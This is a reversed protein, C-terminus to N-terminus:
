TFIMNQCCVDAIQGFMQTEGMAYKMELKRLRQISGNQLVVVGNGSMVVRVTLKGPRCGTAWAFCGGTPRKPSSSLNPFFSGSIVKLFCPFSEVSILILNCWTVNINWFDNPKWFEMLKVTCEVSRITWWPVLHLRPMPFVLKAIQLNTLIFLHRNPPIKFRKKFSNQM